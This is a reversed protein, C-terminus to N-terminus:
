FPFGKGEVLERARQLCSTHGFKENEKHKEKISPWIYHKGVHYDVLTQHVSSIWM